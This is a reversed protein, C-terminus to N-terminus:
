MVHQLPVHKETQNKMRSDIIAQELMGMAAKTGDPALHSYRETMAITSHGLIEKVTLLPVGAQVLWSACTHRCSHFVFKDKRDTTHTNFGLSDITREFTKSIRTRKKGQKAPFVLENKNECHRKRFMELVPTDMPITRDKGSKTQTLTILRNEIDVYQWTLNFIEGARLGCHLSLLTMDHVDQSKKQLATLLMEAESHSFFRLRRNDFKPKHSKSLHKIPNINHFYGLKTAHNLVMRIVAHAYQITRPARGAKKMAQSVKQIHLEGINAIPTKRLTPLIWNDNLSRERKTASDTKSQSIDDLYIKTFYEEYTIAKREQALKEEQIKLDNLKKAERKESLRAKGRGTKAANKLEALQLAAKEATWGSSAWGLAEEKRKGDFQYRILFYKDLMAGHKRTPHTRYRVGPFKTSQYKAM